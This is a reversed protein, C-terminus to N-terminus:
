VHRRQRRVEYMCISAAVAANLSEVKGCMPIIIKENAAAISEPKLGNGENGIFIAVPGRYDPEDYMKSGGLEAAAVTFGKEALGAAVEAIDDKYIHPVRFLSGMTSRVTKPNYVDVTDKSMIIGSAGAAEACRIITGLNGPDQLADTLIVFPEQGGGSVVDEITYEPMSVECLIGQPTVTDSLKSFVKDAVIECSVDSLLDRNKEAFSESAYVGIILQQPIERFMRIGEVVYSGSEYRSKSKKILKTIHKLRANNESTIM